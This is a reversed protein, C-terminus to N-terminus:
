RNNHKKTFIHVLVVKEQYKHTKLPTLGTYNGYCSPQFMGNCFLIFYSSGIWGHACLINGKFICNVCKSIFGKM